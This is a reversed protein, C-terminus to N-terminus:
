FLRLLSSLTVQWLSFRQKYLDDHGVADCGNEAHARLNRRVALRATCERKKAEVKCATAPDLSSRGAASLGSARVSRLEFDSKMSSKLGTQARM